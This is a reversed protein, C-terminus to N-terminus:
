LAAPQTPFPRHYRCSKKVSDLDIGHLILMLKEHSLSVASADGLHQPLEFTGRELRKYFIWFGSHDWVLLKIRDRRRNLFIYVDGSLPDRALQTTVIGSLGDFSLRMDTPKRYLYFTFHSAIPIMM